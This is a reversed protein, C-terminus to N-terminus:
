WGDEDQSQLSGLIESKLFDFSITCSGRPGYRNKELSLSMQGHSGIFQTVLSIVGDAIWAKYWSEAMSELGITRDKRRVHSVAFVLDYSDRLKGLRKYIGAYEERVEGSGILLDPSDVVLIKYQLDPKWNISEVEEEALSGAAIFFNSPELREEKLLPRIKLDLFVGIPLETEVYVVGSSRSLQACLSVLLSTKGSGPKGQIIHLGKPIGSLGYLSDLFTATKLIQTTETHEEVLQSVSKPTEDRIIKGDGLLLITEYLKIKEQPNVEAQDAASALLTTLEDLSGTGLEKAAAVLEQRFKAQLTGPDIVWSPVVRRWRQPLSVGYKDLLYLIRSYELENM